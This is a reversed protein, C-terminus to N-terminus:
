QKKLLNEVAAVWAHDPDNARFFGQHEGAMLWLFYSNYGPAAVTTHYGRSMEVLEDNKVRYAEDMSGDSTYMCQIGFGQEPQFLFYYVEELVGEAPMRDEDHKHPPFGAWNGPTIFAEGITLWRANTSADIIFSTEREWPKCGLTVQRVDAQRIVQPETDLSTPAKCVAIKVNWPSTITVTQNRPAYFAEAKGEFVSRRVGLTGYSKEGIAFAAKGELLIFGVERDKTEFTTSQGSGLELIGFELMSLSCEGITCLETYGNKPTYTKKYNM